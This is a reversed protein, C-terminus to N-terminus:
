HVTFAFAPYKSHLNGGTQWFCDSNIFDGALFTFLNCTKRSPARIDDDSLKDPALLSKSKRDNQKFGAVCCTESSKYKM